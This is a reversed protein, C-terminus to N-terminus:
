PIPCLHLICRSLWVFTCIPQLNQPSDTFLCSRRRILSSSPLPDSTYSSLLAWRYYYNQHRHYSSSPPLEVLIERTEECRRLFPGSLKQIKGLINHLFLSPPCLRHEGGPFLISKNATWFPLSLPERQPVLRCTQVCGGKM